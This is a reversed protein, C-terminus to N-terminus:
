CDGDTIFPCTLPSFSSFAQLSCRVLVLEGVAWVCFSWTPWNAMGCCGRRSVPRCASGAAKPILMHGLPCSVWVCALDGITADSCFSLCLWDPDRAPSHSHPCSFLASLSPLLNFTMIFAALSARISQLPWLALPSWAALRLLQLTCMCVWARACVCGHMCVWACACVSMSSLISLPLKMWLPTGCSFHSIGVDWFCLPFLTLLM